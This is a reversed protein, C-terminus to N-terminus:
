FLFLLQSNTHNIANNAWKMNPSSVHKSCISNRTHTPCKYAKKQGSLEVQMNVYNSSWLITAKTGGNFDQCTLGGSNDWVGYSFSHLSLKGSIGNKLLADLSKSFRMVQHTVNSSVKM